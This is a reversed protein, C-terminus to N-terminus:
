SVLARVIIWSKEFASLRVRRRFVDYNTREIRELLQSYISILAWLSPRSRPHVLDLLLEADTTGLAHLSADREAVSREKELNILRQAHLAVLARDGPGTRYLRDRTHRRIM